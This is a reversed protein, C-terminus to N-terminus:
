QTAFINVNEDHLYIMRTCTDAQARASDADLPQIDRYPATDFYPDDLCCQTVSPM